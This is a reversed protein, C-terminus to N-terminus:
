LSDKFSFISNFRTKISHFLPTLKWRCYDHWIQIFVRSKVLNPPQLSRHQISSKQIIEPHNRSKEPHNRSSIQIIEPHNGSSIQIINPYYRSSLFHLKKRCYDHWIQTLVRSKMLNPPQLFYRIPSIQIVHPYCKPFMCPYYKSSIHLIQIIHTINPNNRSSIHTIYPHNSPSIEIIRPHFKSSIHTHNRSSIHILDLHYTYSIWVSIM